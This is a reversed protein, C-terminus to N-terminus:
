LGTPQIQRRSIFIYSAFAYMMFIAPRMLLGNGILSSALVSLFIPLTSSGFRKLLSWLYVVLLILGLFGFEITYTLFTNHSTLAKNWRAGVYLDTGPGTGFLMRIPDEIAGIDNFRGIWTGVRGSGLSEIEFTGTLEITHLVKDALVFIAALAITTVAISKLKFKIKRSVLLAGGVFALLTMVAQSSQFGYILYLGVLLTAWLFLTMSLRRAEPRSFYVILMVAGVYYGSSHPSMEYFPWLRARREAVGAFFESEHYYAPQTLVYALLIWLTIASLWYILNFNKRPRMMSMVVPILLTVSRKYGEELDPSSSTILSVIVVATFAGFIVFFFSATGDGSGTRSFLFVAMYFTISLLIANSVATALSQPLVVASAIALIMAMVLAVIVGSTSIILSKAARRGEFGAYGSTISM